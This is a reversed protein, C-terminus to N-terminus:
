GAGRVWERTSLDLHWAHQYEKLKPCLEGPGRRWGALGDGADDIVLVDPERGLAAGFVRLTEYVPACPRRGTGFPTYDHFLLLGGDVLWDFWPLDRVVLGHDGDVFVLDLHPGAYGGLYDWSKRPLVQVNPFGALHKEARVFEKRKPNLTVIAAQPAALALVAASYGLATGIELIHAGPRDCGRALAYLAAAQHTAIERKCWPVAGRARALDRRVDPHQEAVAAMIASPSQNVLQM